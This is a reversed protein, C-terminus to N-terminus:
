ITKAHAAIAQIADEIRHFQPAGGRLLDGMQGSIWTRVSTLHSSQPETPMAILLQQYFEYPRENGTILKWKEWLHMMFVELAARTAGAKLRADGVTRRLQTQAEINDVSAKKLAWLCLERGNAISTSPNWLSDVYDQDQKQYLGDIILAPLVHFYITTSDTQWDVKKQATVADIPTYPSGPSAINSNQPIQPCPTELDELSLGLAKLLRSLDAKFRESIKGYGTRPSWQQISFRLHTLLPKNTQLTQAYTQPTPIPAELATSDGGTVM